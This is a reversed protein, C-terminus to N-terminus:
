AGQTTVNHGVRDGDRMTSILCLNDSEHMQKSHYSVAHGLHLWSRSSSSSRSISSSGLGSASASGPVTVLALSYNSKRDFYSEGYFEPRHYLKVLTGDVMLWSNRWARCSHREVWEKAEEKEEPTPFRVASRMFSPRLIAGMVRCTVRPVTGKGLGAWGAVSQLSVGNGNRGFRYLTVAVQIDVPIQENHSDNIFVPDAALTDVLRDFTAPSVRIYHRFFDPRLTKYVNLVHHIYAPGKPIPNRPVQYRQSYASRIARRM